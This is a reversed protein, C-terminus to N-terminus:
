VATTLLRVTTVVWALGNVHVGTELRDLGGGLRFLAGSDIERGTVPQGIAEAQVLADVVMQRQQDGSVAISKQQRGEAHM